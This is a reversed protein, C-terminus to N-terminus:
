SRERALSGEMMRSNERKKKGEELKTKKMWERKEHDKKLSLNPNIIRKGVFVM